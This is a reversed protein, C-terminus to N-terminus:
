TGTVPDSSLSAVSFFTRLTPSAASASELGAIAAKLRTAAQAFKAEVRETTAKYPDLAFRVDSAKGDTVEKFAFLPLSTLLHKAVAYTAFLATAELFRTQEASPTSVAKVEAFQAPLGSDIEELDATLGYEYLKLSITADPLEDSTVGLAARIDDPSTYETLAAM